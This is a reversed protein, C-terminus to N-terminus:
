ENKDLRKLLEKLERHNDSNPLVAKGKNLDVIIPLLIGFIEDTGKLTRLKRPYYLKM